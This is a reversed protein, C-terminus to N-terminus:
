REEGAAYLHLPIGIDVVRVQGTYNRARPNEFAKKPLQFTVTMNAVVALGLPEGTPIVPEGLYMGATDEFVQAFVTEGDIRIVEGILNMKGVRVIEGMSVGLMGKASIMPGSILTLSGTQQETTTAM